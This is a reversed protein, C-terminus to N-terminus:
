LALPSPPTTLLSEFDLQPSTLPLILAFHMTRMDKWCAAMGGVNGRAVATVCVRLTVRTALDTM